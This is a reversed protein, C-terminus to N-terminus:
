SKAPVADLYQLANHAASAHAAGQTVGSGCCVASPSTSLEVFCLRNGSCGAQDLDHFAVTFGDKGGREKLSEVTHSAALPEEVLLPSELKLRRLDITDGGGAPDADFLASSFFSPRPASSGALRSPKTTCLAKPLPELEPSRARQRSTHLMLVSTGVTTNQCLASSMCQLLTARAAFLGDTATVFKHSSKVRINDGSPLHSM